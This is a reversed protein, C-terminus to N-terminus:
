RDGNTVRCGRGRVGVLDGLGLTLEIILKAELGASSRGGMWCEGQVSDLRSWGYSFFDRDDLLVLYGLGEATGEKGTQCRKPTLLALTNNSLRLVAM